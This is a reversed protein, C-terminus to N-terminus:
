EVAREFDRLSQGSRATFRCALGRNYWYDAENPTISLAETLAEYSQPFNQLMAHAGAMYGLVEARQQTRQPLFNLLREYIKVAGEYDEQLMLDNAAGLWAGVQSYTTSIAVKKHKSRKTKKSM